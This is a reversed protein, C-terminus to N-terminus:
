CLPILNDLLPPTAQLDATYAVSAWRLDALPRLRTPRGPSSVQANTSEDNPDFDHPMFWTKKGERLPNTTLIASAEILTM